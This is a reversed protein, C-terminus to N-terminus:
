SIAYLNLSPMAEIFDGAAGAELAVGVVENAATTTAVLTGDTSATLRDGIAVTGSIKVKVTGAGSRLKISVPEGAAAKSQTVGIIKDTAATAIVAKGGSLKVALGEGIAVNATYSKANGENQQSM